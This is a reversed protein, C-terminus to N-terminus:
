IVFTGGINMGRAKTGVLLAAQALFDELVSVGKPRLATLTIGECLVDKPAGSASLMGKPAAVGAACQGIENTYIMPATEGNPVPLGEAFSQVAVGM